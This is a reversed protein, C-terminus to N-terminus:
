LVIPKGAEVAQLFQEFDPRAGRHARSALEVLFPRDIRGRNDNFAHIFDAADQHKDGHARGPSIASLYKLALLAEVRPVPVNEFEVKQDLAADFLEHSGSKILDVELLRPVESLVGRWHVETEQVKTCLEKLVRAAKRVHRQRIVLDVDVTARPRKRYLNIGEADVLVWEIGESRLRDFLAEVKAPLRDWIM